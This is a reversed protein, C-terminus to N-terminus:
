REKETRGGEASFAYDREPVCVQIHYESMFEDRGRQQAVRHEALERWAALTALSEFEVLTLLEGDQAAFDKYSM